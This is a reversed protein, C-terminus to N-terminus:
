TNTFPLLIDAAWRVSFRSKGREDGVECHCSGSNPKYSFTYASACYDRRYRYQPLTGFIASVWWQSRDSYRNCFDCEVLTFTLTMVTGSIFLNGLTGFKEHCANWTNKYLVIFLSNSWSRHKLGRVLKWKFSTTIPWDNDSLHWCTSVGITWIFRGRAFIVYCCIASM